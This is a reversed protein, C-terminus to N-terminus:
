AEVNEMKKWADANIRRMMSKLQRGPGVEVFETIGDAIMRSILTSWLVPSIIQQPVLTGFSSKPTAMNYPKATVNSYVCCRAPRVRHLVNECAIAFQNMAPEMLSSHFAGSTKLITGTGGATKAAAALAEVTIASGSYAFGTDFLENALELVAEPHQRKVSIILSDIKDRSLGIVSVMAQPARLQSAEAMAEARCKVLELADRFSLVGAFCLATLEGLSFGAVAQCHAIKEPNEQRFLEAAALGAVFLAPQCYKTQTLKDMPGDLCLALVDYGLVENAERLMAKVVPLDKVKALMGVFQAGQGPFLLAITAKRSPSSSIAGEMSRLADFGCVTATMSPDPRETKSSAISERFYCLRRAVHAICPLAIISWHHGDMNEFIVHYRRMLKEVTEDDQLAKEAVTELIHKHSLLEALAPSRSRARFVILPAHLSLWAMEGASNILPMLTKSSSVFRRVYAKMRDSCQPSSLLVAISAHSDPCTCLSELLESDVDHGSAIWTLCVYLGFDGELGVPHISPLSRPDMMFIAGVEFGLRELESAAAAAVTCGISYGGLWYVGEPQVQQILQSCARALDVLSDFAPSENDTLPYDIGYVPIPLMKVLADYELRGVMACFLYLPQAGDVENLKMLTVGLYEQSAYHGETRIDKTYNDSPKMGPRRNPGDPIKLEASNGKCDGLGKPLHDTLFSAIDDVTPYDFILTSPIVISPFEAALLNRFEIAFLSDIGAGALPQDSDVDYGLSKQILELVLSRPSREVAHGSGSQPTSIAITADPSRDQHLSIMNSVMRPPRHTMPYNFFRSWNIPAIAVQACRSRLISELADSFARRDILKMGLSTNNDVNHRMAMGVEAVPAWQISQGVLEQSQRWHVLADLCANAAAYNAQGINGLISSLSSYMVFFDLPEELYAELEHLRWAGDVKAEYVKRVNEANQNAILGDDLVGAAHFIGRLPPMTLLSDRLRLIDQENSVDCRLRHITVSSNSLWAWDAESGRAVEGSRSLLVLHRAGLEILVRATLLGLGGLGGSILYTSTGHTLARIREPESGPEDRVMSLVTKGVGSSHASRIADVAFAFGAFGEALLPKKWFGHAMEHPLVSLSQSDYSVLCTSTETDNQFRTTFPTPEAKSFSQPGIHIAKKISLKEIFDFTKGDDMGDTVHIAVDFSLPQETESFGRDKSGYLDIDYNLLADHYKPHAAAYVRAGSQKLVNIVLLGIHSQAGLILVEYGEWSESALLQKAICVGIPMAAAEEFTWDHPKHALMSQPTVVYSRLCDQAVGFVADGVRFNTANSGVSVVIGACEGVVNSSEGSFGSVETRSLLGASFLRLMVDSPGLYPLTRAPSVHGRVCIDLSYVRVREPVHQALSGRMMRPILAKVISGSSAQLVVEDEEGSVVLDLWHALSIPVDLRLDIDLCRVLVYPMELRATRALGWLGTHRPKFEAPTRTNPIMMSPQQTALTAFILALHQAEDVLERLLTLAMGMVDIECVDTCPTGVFVVGRYRKDRLASRLSEMDSAAVLKGNKANNFFTSSAFHTELEKALCSDSGVFIWRLANRDSICVSDTDCSMWPIWEVQYLMQAAPDQVMVEAPVARVRLNNMLLLAGGDEGIFRLNAVTCDGSHESVVIHVWVNSQPNRNFVRICNVSVPVKLAWHEADDLAMIAQLCGDILAPHFMFGCTGENEHVEVRALVEDGMSYLERLTRFRSSYELGVASCRMYLRTIDEKSWEM